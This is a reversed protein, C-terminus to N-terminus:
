RTSAAQDNDHEAVFQAADEISNCATYRLGAMKTFFEAWFSLVNNMGVVVIWGMNKHRLMTLMDPVIEFDIPYNDANRWDAIVHLPFSAAELYGIFQLNAEHQQKATILDTYIYLVASRSYWQSAIPM